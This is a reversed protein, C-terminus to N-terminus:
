FDNGSFFSARGGAAGASFLSNLARVGFVLNTPPHAKYNGPLNGGVGRGSLGVVGRINELKKEFRIKEFKEDEFNPLFLCVTRGLCGGVM